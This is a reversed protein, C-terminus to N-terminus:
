SGGRPYRSRFSAAQSAGGIAGGVSGGVGAPVAATVDILRELRAAIGALTMGGGPSVMEPGKEGFGYAKGSAGYGIVPESIMGGSGYWTPATSAQSAQPGIGALAAIVSAATLPAAAATSTGDPGDDSDDGAASAASAAAAAAASAAAVQAPTLGLMRTVGAITAKQSALQKKWAAVSAKLAATSGAASIWSSLHSDSGALSTRWKTLATREGTLAAIHKKDAAEANVYHAHLAESLGGAGALTKDRSLGSTWTDIQANVTPHKSGTWAKLYAAGQSAVSGGAAYGKIGLAAFLPALIRSDAASVVTEDKSVRILVDDATPSTGATVKGGAALGTDGQAILGAAVPDSIWPYYGSANYKAVAQRANDLANLSGPQGPYIQWLGSAGISNVVDVRGGSEAIAIQAMNAAVAPNGGAQIWLAQLQADTLDGKGTATSGSGIGLLGLIDGGLGKLAGLAKGPLSTVSILGKKVIDELAKPLGGLVKDAIAVPNARLMGGLLGGMLHEGIGAMVTSDSHIGFFSKVAGVIPQVINSDVWSGIGAMASTIGSFLGSIINRGASALWSVAGGFFGSFRAGVGSFWPAVTGSWYGSVGSWLGSIVNRGAAALWGGAGGFWGGVRGAVSSFWPAVTGSWIDAIGSWLGSIIKRGGPVLWSGAASFWGAIRGPMATFWASVTEWADQIGSWLGGILSSGISALFGTDMSIGAGIAEFFGPLTKNFFDSVPDQVDNIFGNHATSWMTEWTNLTNAAWDPIDGNFFNSVPAQVDRLFGDHTTDWVGALGSSHAWGPLMVTFFHDVPLLLGTNFFGGITGWFGSWNAAPPPGLEKGIQKLKAQYGTLPAANVAPSILTANIANIDGQTLKLRALQKDVSKTDSGPSINMQDIAQIQGPTLNLSTLFANLDASDVAPHILTANIAAIQGSTLGLIKLTADVQKQDSKPSIDMQNINFIQTPTLELATLFANLETADVSPHILAANIDAIQGPTLDLKALLADVKTQDSKPSIDMKNVAAIQGPFLGISDLLLYTESPDTKPRIVLGNISAIQGPTLGITKLLADVQKEDSKPSIDLANVKDIQGPILGLQTLFGDLLTNNARPSFVDTNIAGIQTQILGLKKLLADVQAQNSQPSIHLKNVATIQGPLLGIDTLFADFETVNVAPALPTNNVQNWLAEAQARTFGLKEAFVVFEAQAQATNGLTAVLATALAQASATMAGLNDHSSRAATAFNDFVKQGGGVQFIAAAMATSLNQQLASALNNMDDALNSSDITLTSVIGDLNKTADKTNGLWLTLSKLSDPGTYGATQAFAYLEATAEKSGSATPILQAVLDKGAQTLMATGKAGLGAASAQNLLAAEVASASSIQSQFQSQLTLSADSVTGLSKKLTLAATGTGEMSAGSAAADANMTNMGQEFTIFASAGGTVVGLFATWGGTIASVSSKQQESAFTVADLAGTLLGGSVSMEKYGSILNAVKQQMLAFSDGANVGALDMLALADSYSYGQTILSGTESFLATQEKSLSIIAGKYASINDTAQIAAGQGPVFIGKVAKGLNEVSGIVNGGAFDSWSKTWDQGFALADKGFSNATGGLTNWGKMIQATSVQSISTNLTGIASNIQLIAASANDSAIGTNLTGILGTVSASARGAEYVVDALAAAAVVAWAWPSLALAGLKALLGGSAESAVDEEAALGAMAEGEAATSAEIEAMAAKTEAAAQQAASGFLGWSKLQLLIVSGLSMFKQGLNSAAGSLDTFMAGLRTFGGADKDVNALAGAGKAVGGLALTLSYLPSVMKVALDALLGGWLLFAHIGLVAKLIPAPIESFVQVLKAAGEVQDLLYHETGPDSKLLNEFAVGLTDLIQALQKMINYGSVLMAGSAGQAKQFLDLKAIWTDFGTVVMQIGGAAVSSQKGVLGMVGGYLELIGPQLDKQLQSLGIHVPGLSMGFTHAVEDVAKINRALQEWIPLTTIITQAMTLTTEVVIVSTEILGDLLIHWLQVQGILETSGFAGAWLQVQRTLDFFGKSGGEAAEGADKAVGVLKGMSLAASASAVSVGTLAKQLGAAQQTAVAAGAVNVTVNGAQGGALPTGAVAAKLAEAAAAVQAVSALAQANNVDLPVGHALMAKLATFAARGQAIAALAQANDVDLPPTGAIDRDLDGLQGSASAAQQQFADLATASERLQSQFAALADAGAQGPGSMAATVQALLQELQELQPIAALIAPRQPAAMQNLLTAYDASAQKVQTDLQEAAQTGADTGATGGAGGASTVPAAAAEAPAAAPSTAAPSPAAAAEPAASPSAAAPVPVAVPAAAANPAPGSLMSQISGTLLAAAASRLAAAADRLQGAADATDAAASGAAAAAAKEAAAAAELDGAAQESGPGSAAQGQGTIVQRIYGSQDQPVGGGQLVQQVPTVTGGGGPDSIMRGLLGGQASSQATPAGTVPHPSFLSNLTGLVSGQPSSKLRQAADRSIMNDLDAFMRRARGLSATDFVAAVRVERDKTLADLKARAAALDADFKSTDISLRAEISGADFAM